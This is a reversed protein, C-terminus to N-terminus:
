PVEELTTDSVGYSNFGLGAISADLEDFVEAFKQRQHNGAADSDPLCLVFDSGVNRVAM